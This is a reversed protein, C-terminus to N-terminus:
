KGIICHAKPLRTKAKLRCSCGRVFGPKMVNSVEDKNNIYKKNDCIPGLTSHEKYIPCEQCIELRSEALDDNRGFLEKMHGNLIDIAQPM